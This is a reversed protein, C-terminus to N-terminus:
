GKVTLTLTLERTLCCRVLYIICLKVKKDRLRRYEAYIMYIHQHYEATSSTQDRTAM